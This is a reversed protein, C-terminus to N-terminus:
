TFSLLQPSSAAECPHGVFDQCPTPDSPGRSPGRSLCLYQALLLHSLPPCRSPHPHNQHLTALRLDVSSPWPGVSSSRNRLSPRPVQQRCLVALGVVTHHRFNTQTHCTARPDAQHKLLVGFLSTFGQKQTTQPPQCTSQYVTHTLDARSRIPM